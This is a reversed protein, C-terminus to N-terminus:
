ALAERFAELFAQAGPYRNEPIHSLARGVVESARGPLDPRMDALSRTLGAIITENEGRDGFEYPPVGTAMHFFTAAASFVDSEPLVRNPDTLREPPMCAPEGGALLIPPFEVPGGTSARSALGMDTLKVALSGGRRLDFLVNRPCINRHVFSLSHMYAVAELLQLFLPVAQDTELRRGPSAALLDELSGGDVYEIAIYPRGGSVGDGLYRIINVHRMQKTIDVERRFVEMARPKELWEPTIAKIAAAAGTDDKVARYVLSKGGVAIQELLTYGAIAPLGNDQHTRTKERERAALRASIDKQMIATLRGSALRERDPAPHRETGGSSPAPNATAPEEDVSLRFLCAGALITDGSKLRVFDTFPTGQKGGMHRENIVLGNTSGLDIIRVRNESTDVLFHLHSAAPDAALSFTAKAHRGFIFVVGDRLPFTQDKLPGALCNLSINRM